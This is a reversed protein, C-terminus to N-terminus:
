SRNRPSNRSEPRSASCKSEYSNIQREWQTPALTKPVRDVTTATLAQAITAEDLRPEPLPMTPTTPIQASAMKTQSNKNIAACGVIGGVVAASTILFNRRTTKKTM